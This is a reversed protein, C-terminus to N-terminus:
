CLQGCDHKTKIKRYCCVDEHRGRYCIKAWRGKCGCRHAAPSHKKLLPVREVRCFARLIRKCTSLFEKWGRELSEPSFICESKLCSHHVVLGATVPAQPNGVSIQRSNRRVRRMAARQLPRLQAWMNSLGYITSSMVSGGYPWYFMALDVYKWSPMATRWIELLVYSLIALLPYSLECITLSTVSQWLVVILPNQENDHDNDCDNVEKM